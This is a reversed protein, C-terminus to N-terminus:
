IHILSLYLDPKNSADRTSGMVDELWHGIKGDHSGTMKSTDPIKGHVKEKYIKIIKKRSEASSKTENM